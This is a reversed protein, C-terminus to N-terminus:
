KGQAEQMQKMIGQMQTLLTNMDAPPIADSHVMSNFMGNLKQMEKQMTKPTIKAYVMKTKLDPHGLVKSVVEIPVCKELSFTAFTQRAVQM